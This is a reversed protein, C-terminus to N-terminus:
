AFHSANLNTSYSYHQHKGEKATNSKTDFSYALVKGFQMPKTIVFKNTKREWQQGRKDQRWWSAMDTRGKQSRTGTQNEGLM